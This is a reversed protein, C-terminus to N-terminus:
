YGLKACDYVSIPILEGDIKVYSHDTFRRSNVVTFIDHGTGVDGLVTYDGVFEFKGEANRGSSFATGKNDHDDYYYASYTSDSPTYGWVWKGTVKGIVGPIAEQIYEMEYYHGSLIPKTRMWVIVSTPPEGPAVATVVCKYTGLLFNLEALQPPAPPADSKPRFAAEAATADTLSPVRSASAEATGLATATLALVAAGAAARSIWKSKRGTGFVSSLKPTRM